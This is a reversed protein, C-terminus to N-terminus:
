VDLEAVKKAVEVACWRIYAARSLGLRNAQQTVLDFDVPSLRVRVNDSLIGSAYIGRARPSAQPIIITITNHKTM